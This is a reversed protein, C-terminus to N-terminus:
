KQDGRQHILSRCNCDAGATEPQALLAPGACNSHRTRHAREMQQLVIMSGHDSLFPQEREWSSASGLPTQTERGVPTQYRTKIKPILCKSGGFNGVFCILRSWVAFKSKQIFSNATFTITCMSTYGKDDLSKEKQNLLSRWSCWSFISQLHLFTVGYDLCICNKEVACRRHMIWGSSIDGNTQM